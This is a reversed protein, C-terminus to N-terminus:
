HKEQFDRKGAQDFQLRHGPLSSGKHGGWTRAFKEGVYGKVGIEEGKQSLLM